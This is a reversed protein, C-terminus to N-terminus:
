RLSTGAMNLVMILDASATDNIAPPTIARAGAGADAFDTVMVAPGPLLALQASVAVALSAGVRFLSQAADGPSETGATAARGAVVNEAGEGTWVLAFPLPVHVPDAVSPVLLVEMVPILFTVMEVSGECGPEPGAVHPERSPPLVAKNLAVILHFAVGLLTASVVTVPM